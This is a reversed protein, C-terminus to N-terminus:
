RNGLDAPAPLNAQLYAARHVAKPDDMTIEIDLHGLDPRSMREIVHLQDSHPLGQGNLWTQDNLLTTDVVLTDNGDWKGISDGM